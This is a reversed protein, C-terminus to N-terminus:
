CTYLGFSFIMFSSFGIVFCPFSISISCPLSDPLSIKNARGRANLLIKCCNNLEASTATTPRNAPPLANAATPLQTANTPIKTFRITPSDTPGLAASALRIPCFFLSLIGSISWVMRANPTSRPTPSITRPSNSALTIRSTDPVGSDTIPSASTYM